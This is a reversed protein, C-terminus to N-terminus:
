NEKNKVPLQKVHDYFCANTTKNYTNIWSLYPIILIGIIIGIYTSPTIEDYFSIGIIGITIFLMIIFIIQWGIFSLQLVFYDGRRNDM